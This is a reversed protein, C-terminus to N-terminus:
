LFGVAAIGVVGLAIADVTRMPAFVAGAAASSSSSSGVTSTAADGGDNRRSSTSSSYENGEGDNLGDDNDQSSGTTSGTEQANVIEGRGSAPITITGTGTGTASATTASASHVTSIMTSTKVAGQADTYTSDVELVSYSPESPSSSSPNGASSPTPGTIKPPSSDDVTTISEDTPPPRAPPAGACYNLGYAIVQQADVPSCAEIACDRIGYGFNPNSCLCRPDSAPCGLLPAQALMNQICIQGCVPLVSANEQAAATNSMLMAAAVVAAAKMTTPM